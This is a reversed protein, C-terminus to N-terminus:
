RDIKFLGENLIKTCVEKNLSSDFLPIGFNCDLLVWDDEKLQDPSVENQGEGQENQDLDLSMKDKLKQVETREASPFLESDISDIESALVDASAKDKLGNHPPEPSASGEVTFDFENSELPGPFFEEEEEEHFVTRSMKGTNLLTVYGCTHELDVNNCLKEIAGHNQFSKCFSGTM